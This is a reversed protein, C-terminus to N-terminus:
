FEEKKPSNMYCKEWSNKKRFLSLLLGVFTLIPMSLHPDRFAIHSIAAVHDLDCMSKKEMLWGIIPQFIGGVFMDFMNVIAIASGRANLLNAELSAVFCIM